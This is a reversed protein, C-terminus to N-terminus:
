CPAANVRPCGSTPRTLVYMTPGDQAVPVRAVREFGFRRYFDLNDPNSTSLAVQEGAETAAALRAALLDSGIGRGQVDPDVALLHLTRAGPPTAADTAASGALAADRNDPAWRDLIAVFPAPDDLLQRDPATWAAVARGSPDLDVQGVQAARELTLVFIAALAERRQGRDPLLWRYLPDDMFARVMGPLAERFRLRRGTTAGPQGQRPVDVHDGPGDRPEVSTAPRYPGQGDHERHRASTIGTRPM